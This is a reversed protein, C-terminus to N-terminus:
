ATQGARHLRRTRRATAVAVGAILALVAALATLAPVIWGPQRSTAAPRALSTAQAPTSDPMSSRENALLRRVNTDAQGSLHDTPQAQAATLGALTTAALMAVLTLTRALKSM